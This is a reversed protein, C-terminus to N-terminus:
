WAKGGRGSQLPKGKKFPNKLFRMVKPYMKIQAITIGEIRLYNGWQPAKHKSCLTSLLHLLPNGGYAAGDRDGTFLNLM